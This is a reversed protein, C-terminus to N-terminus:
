GRGRVAGVRRSARRADLDETALTTDHGGADVAAFSRRPWHGSRAETRRVCRDHDERRGPQRRVLALCSARASGCLLVRAGLRVAGRCRGERRGGRHQLGLSRGLRCQAEARHGRLSHPPWRRDRTATDPPTLLLAPEALSKAISETESAILGHTAFHVVRAQALAGDTNLQKIRTETARAGLNVEREDAGLSARSPACNTPPRPCPRRVGSRRLTPWVAVFCVPSPKRSDDLRRGHGTGAKASGEPVVAEGMCEQRAM